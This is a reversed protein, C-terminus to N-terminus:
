SKEEVMNFDQHAGTTKKYNPPNQKIIGFSRM